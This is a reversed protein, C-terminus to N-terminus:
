TNKKLRPLRLNWKWQKMFSSVTLDSSSGAIHKQIRYVCIHCCKILPSQTADFPFGKGKSSEETSCMRRMAVKAWLLSFMKIHRLSKTFKSFVCLCQRRHIKSMSVDYSRFFFLLHLGHTSLHIQLNSRLPPYNLRLNRELM